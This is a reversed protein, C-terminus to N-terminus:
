MRLVGHISASCVMCMFVSHVVCCAGDLVRVRVCMHMCACCVMETEGIEGEDLGWVGKSKVLVGSM